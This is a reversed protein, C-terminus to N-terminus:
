IKQRKDSCIKLFRGRKGTSHEMFVAQEMKM